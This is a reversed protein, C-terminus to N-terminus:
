ARRKGARILKIMLADRSERRLRNIKSRLSTRQDAPATCLLQSLSAERSAKRRPATRHKQCAECAAENRHITNASISVGSLAKVTRQIAEMTVPESKHRPPSGRRYSTKGNGEAEPGMTHDVMNPNRGAHKKVPM